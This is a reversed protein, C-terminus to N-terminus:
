LVRAIDDTRAEHKKHVYLYMKKEALPPELHSIGELGMEHIVAYGTLKSYLAIDIRGMSLMRFLEKETPVKAVSAFDETHNELIKWGRVLGIDLGRISEWGDLPFSRRSFAVFEMTMNPEPVRRLNPYQQQIGAIRNAEADLIGENVDILSKETPTFVIEMDIGLRRFAETFLRDLFGTERDNSLLNQYSTSIIFPQEARLNPASYIVLFLITLPFLKIFREM